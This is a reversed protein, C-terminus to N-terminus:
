RLDHKDRRRVGFLMRSELRRRLAAYYAELFAIDDPRPGTWAIKEGIRAAVAEVTESDRRRLVDELVHLEHVGYADLQDQTFLIDNDSQSREAALDPMLARKPAKIVWTGAILDGARLRDRNFLPFLVFVLCWVSGALRIWADVGEGGAFLFAMPLFVEVERMANRAFVADATLRGGDRAAVRLGVARKGPTAARPGMEFVLFYFNRLGFFGLLWIIAVIEINAGRDSLGTWVALITLAVLATVIILADICFAGVRDAFSAVRLRLDVGEPTVMSRLRVGEGQAANLPSPRSLATPRRQSM